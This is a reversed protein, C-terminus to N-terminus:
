SRERQQFAPIPHGLGTRFSMDMLVPTSGFIGDRKLVRHAESLTDRYFQFLSDEDPFVTFRRNIINGKGERLSKGTTALFPPDFMMCTISEDELPLHRADAQVV